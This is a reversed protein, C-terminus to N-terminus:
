QKLVRHMTLFNIVGFVFFLFFIFELGNRLEEEYVQKFNEWRILEHRTFTNLLENYKPLDGLKKENSLLMLMDHQSPDHPALLAYLVCSKVAKKWEQLYTHTTNTLPHYLAHM